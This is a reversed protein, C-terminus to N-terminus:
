PRFSATEQYDDDASEIMPNPTAESFSSRPEHSPESIGLERERRRRSLTTPKRESPAPELGHNLEQEIFDKRESVEDPLTAQIRRAASPQAPTARVTTNQARAVENSLWRGFPAAAAGIGIFAGGVLPAIPLLTVASAAAVYLGAASVVASGANLISGLVREYAPEKAIRRQHSNIHRSIEQSSFAHKGNSLVAVENLRPNVIRNLINGFGSSSALRTLRAGVWTPSHYLAPEGHVTTGIHYYGRPM